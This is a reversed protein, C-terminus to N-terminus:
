EGKIANGTKFKKLMGDIGGLIQSEWVTTNTYFEYGISQKTIKREDLKRCTTRMQEANISISAVTGTDTENKDKKHRSNKWSKKNKEKEKQKKHKIVTKDDNDTDNRGNDGNTDGNGGNTNRSDDADNEDSMSISEDNEGDNAGNEYINKDGSETKDGGHSDSGVGQVYICRKITKKFKKISDHLETCEMTARTRAIKQLAGKNKEKLQTLLERYMVLEDIDEIYKDIHARMDDDIDENYSSKFTILIIRLASIVWSVCFIIVGITFGTLLMNRALLTTDIKGPEVSYKEIFGAIANVTLVVKGIIMDNSVEVEDPSDNADGRTHLITTGDVNVKETVRHIIDAGYNFCVIDGESIEDVGCTKIINLSNISIEPEMSGSIVLRATYGFVNDCGNNIVRVMFYSVFVIISTYVIFAFIRKSFHKQMKNVQKGM